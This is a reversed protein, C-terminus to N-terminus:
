AMPMVASEVAGLVAEGGSNRFLLRNARDWERAEANLAAYGGHARVAELWPDRQMARYCRFGTDIATHLVDTAEAAEGHRSFVRAVHYLVEPDQQRVQALRRAAALSDLRRGELLTGYSILIDSYRTQIRDAAERM